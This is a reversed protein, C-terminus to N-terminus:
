SARLRDACLDSLARRAEVRLTARRWQPDGHISTQPRALSYVRDALHEILEPTWPVGLAPDLGDLVRPAPLMAGLVISLSTARQDEFTGAIAVSAQPFDVAQRARIKRYTSRHGPLATPVLIRTLLASRPVTLMRDYRGDKTFLGHLAREIPGAETQFELTAGLATLMPVGDSSQAAVCARGSGIVHCWDGDAKLCKGLAGRWLETQNVYLCRTDLLVNGGLTGMRRHQPGAIVALAERLGPWSASAPHDLLDQLTVMAGISLGAPTVEIQRLEALDGLAILAAPSRLGQKLNVLLDTGGALYDSDLTSRLHVAEAVTRPRHVEFAPLRLM